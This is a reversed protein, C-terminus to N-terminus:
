RIGSEQDKDRNRESVYRIKHILSQDGAGEDKLRWDRGHKEFVAKEGLAGPYEARGEDVKGLPALRKILDDTIYDRM